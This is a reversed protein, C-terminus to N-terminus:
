RKRELLALFKSVIENVKNDFDGQEPHCGRSVKIFSYYRDNGALNDQGDYSFSRQTTMSLMVDYDHFFLEM